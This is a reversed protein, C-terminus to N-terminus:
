VHKGFKNSLSNCLRRDYLGLEKELSWGAWLNLKRHELNIM